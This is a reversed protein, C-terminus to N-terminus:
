ALVVWQQVSRWYSALVGQSTLCGCIDTPHRRVFPMYLRIVARGQTQVFRGYAPNCSYVQNNPSEQPVILKRQYVHDSM